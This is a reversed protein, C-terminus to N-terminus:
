RDAKTSKVIIDDVYVELNLGIQPDFTCQMLRQFTAAANHLGFSMTMYCFTGFPTIFTTKKEGKWALLM